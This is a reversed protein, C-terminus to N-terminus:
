HNSKCHYPASPECNRKGKREKKIKINNLHHNTSNFAQSSSLETRQSSNKANTHLCKDMLPGNEIWNWLQRNSNMTFNERLRPVKLLWRQSLLSNLQRLSYNMRFRLYSNAFSCTSETSATTFQQNFDQMLIKFNTQLALKLINSYLWQSASRVESLDLLIM